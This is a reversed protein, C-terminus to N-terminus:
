DTRFTEKWGDDFVDWRERGGGHEDCLTQIWGGGGRPYGPSGCEECIQYSRREAEREIEWGAEYDSGETVFQHYYRLGGFKEKVQHVEYDPDLAALKQDTEVVLSYWGKACSIWRGWGRPIRALIGALAEAYEGADEPVHATNLFADPDRAVEKIKEGAQPNGTLDTVLKAMEDPNM